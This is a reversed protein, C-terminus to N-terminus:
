KLEKRFGTIIGLSVYGNEDIEYDTKLKDVTYILKSGIIENRVTDPAFCNLKITGADFRKKGTPNTTASLDLGTLSTPILIITTSTLKLFWPM